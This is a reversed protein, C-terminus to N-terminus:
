LPRVTTTLRSVAPLRHISPISTFASSYTLRAANGINSRAQLEEVAGDYPAYVDVDTTRTMVVNAGAANLLSAVKKRYGPYHRKREFFCRCCRLRQRMVPSPSPRAQSGQDPQLVSQQRLCSRDYGNYQVLHNEGSDDNKAPPTWTSTPKSAPKSATKSGNATSWQSWQKVKGSKDNIDIVVRSSGKTGTAGPLTFVKVDNKTM